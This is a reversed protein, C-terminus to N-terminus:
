MSYKQVKLTIEVCLLAMSFMHVTERFVCSISMGKYM